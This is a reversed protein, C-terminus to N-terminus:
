GTSGIEGFTYLRLTIYDVLMYLLLCMSARDRIVLGLGVGLGLGLSSSIM